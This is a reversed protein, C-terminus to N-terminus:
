FVPHIAQKSCKRAQAKENFASVAPELKRAHSLQKSAVMRFAKCPVRTKDSMVARPPGPSLKAIAHLRAHRREIMNEVIRYEFVERPIGFDGCDEVVRHCGDASRFGSCCGVRVVKFSDLRQRGDRA